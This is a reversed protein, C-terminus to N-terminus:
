LGKFKTPKIQQSELMQEVIFQKIFDSRPGQRKAGNKPNILNFKEPVEVRFSAM